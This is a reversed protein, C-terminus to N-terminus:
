DQHIILRYGISLIYPKSLNNLSTIEIGFKHNNGYCIGFTNGMASYTDHFIPQFDTQSQSAFQYFTQHNFSHISFISLKKTPHFSLFLPTQLNIPVYAMLALMINTNLRLGISANFKSNENGIIQQKLRVGTFLGSNIDIGFDSKEAIGLDFALNVEPYYENNQQPNDFYYPNYATKNMSSLNAQFAYNDKGLTKADQLYIFSSCSNLGLLIFLISIHLFYNRM